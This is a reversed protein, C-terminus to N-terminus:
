ADIISRLQICKRSNVVETYVINSYVTYLLKLLLRVHCFKSNIFKQIHLSFSCIYGSECPSEVRSLSILVSGSVWLVNQSDSRLLVKSSIPVLYMLGDTRFTYRGSQSRCFDLVLQVGEM